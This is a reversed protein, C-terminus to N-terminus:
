SSGDQKGHRSCRNVSGDGAPLTCWMVAPHASLVGRPLSTIRATSAPPEETPFAAPKTQLTPGQASRHDRRTSASPLGWEGERNEALKLQRLEKSSPTGEPNQAISAQPIPPQLRGSATKKGQPMTTRQSKQEVTISSNRLPVELARGSSTKNMSLPKINKNKHLHRPRMSQTPSM